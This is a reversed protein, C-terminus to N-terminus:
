KLSNPEMGKPSRLVLSFDVGEDNFMGTHLHHRLVDWDM